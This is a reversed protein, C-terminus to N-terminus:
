NIGVCVLCNNLFFQKLISEANCNYIHQKCIFSGTKYEYFFDCIVMDADEEKAKKYLEDLMEPEVWDDPDAHMTYEGVSEDLGRQRASSVGGNEKHIVRIRSDKKAYEDCIEGSRDPSGDDILLLEFDTFTQALISDICRNLYKEAKYVPVIISVKPM